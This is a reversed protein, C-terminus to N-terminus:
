QGLVRTIWKNMKGETELGQDSSFKKNDGYNKRKWFTM